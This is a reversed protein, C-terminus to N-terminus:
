AERGPPRPTHDIGLHERLDADLCGLFQRGYPGDELDDLLQEPLDQEHSPSWSAAALAIAAVTDVDGGFSVCRHLLGSLSTTSAVASMAAKVCQIGAMSVRGKWPRNWDGDVQASVFATLEEPSGQRRAFHHVMLAAAQASRVGADTDHTIRAQIEACELVAEASDLLGIPGARMAAGSRDSTPRIRELFEAGSDVSRLFRYFRPAYGTRPDRKFVEVFHDALLEPTLSQGTLMAETVAITMQTDDTYRGSKGISLAPRRYKNLNNLARVSVPNRFEFGAGYADGVAIEVLM